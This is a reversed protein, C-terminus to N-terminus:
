KAPAPALHKRYRAREGDQGRVCRGLDAQSITVADRTLEPVNYSKLLLTNHEPNEQPILFAKHAHGQRDFYAIFVRTYNGDIRRSSFAIWRGNSSWSHFSDTDPSNAERLNYCSDTQLNKVWLDSSKHWIHFQGYDGQTYLVYRGDPSIRPLTISHRHIAAHVETRPEGFTRTGPNFPVSKLDYYISDYCQM